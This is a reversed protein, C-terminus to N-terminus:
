LVELIEIFRKQRIDRQGTHTTQRSAAVKYQALQEAISAPPKGNDALLRGFALLKRRAEPYDPGGGNSPGLMGSALLSTVMTYFNPLDRALRSRSFDPHDKYAKDLFSFCTRLNKLELPVIAKNDAEIKNSIFSKLVQGPARHKRTRCYLVIEVLRDWM